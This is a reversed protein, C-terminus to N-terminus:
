TSRENILVHSYTDLTESNRSHGLQAAILTVPVGRAVQVSASRHRLDHPHYHAIGASQCARRMVHGVSRPTGSFVRRESTRDDPPTTTTIEIMLTEPVAVWRRAAATKGQRIRFRSNAEDVDRWELDCAEGVRMGTEALTQLLLRYRASAAAIIAAVDSGSPPEVVLREARPLRVGLTPNPDIKAYDFIGRLTVLYRRISAPKLAVGSIWAQVDIATITAPDREGFIPVILALHSKMVKRAAPALDVRSSVYADAWDAFSRVPPAVAIALLLTDAPNRGAAIEGAILDRRAKAEKLTRFSGGHQVPYARGGLRFRVVYRSGNSTKRTTITLTGM